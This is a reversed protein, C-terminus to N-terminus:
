ATRGWINKDLLMNNLEEGTLVGKAWEWLHHLVVTQVKETEVDWATIEDGDKALFLTKNLEDGTLVEKAWEWLKHLIVLQGNEDAV